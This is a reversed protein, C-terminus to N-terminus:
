PFARWRGIPWFIARVVGVFDDRQAAGWFRSDQSHASNDGLMFYEDDGLAFRPSPDLGYLHKAQPVYYVDRDIQVRSIRLECREAVLGVHCSPRAVADEFRDSGVLRSIVTRGDQQVYVRGDRHAFTWRQGPGLPRPSAVSIEDDPHLTDGTLELNVEGSAAIAAIMLLQGYTWTFGFGGDGSFAALDCTVRVDANPHVDEPAPDSYVNYSLWNDIPRAFTLKQQKSAAGSFAAEKSFTWDSEQADAQWLPQKLTQAVYTSDFVPFWLEEQQGPVKRLRRGDIFVDGDALGVTEGPLGVLRKVYPVRAPEGPHREEPPIEQGRPPYWFVALDWRRPFAIKDVLIRDGALPLGRVGHAQQHGCNGCTAQKDHRSDFPWRRHYDSMTIPYQWGCNQCTVDTHAGLITTALGGTPVVFSEMLFGSVLLAIAWGAGSGGALWALMTLLSKGRTTGMMRHIAAYIALCTGVLVLALWEFTEDAYQLLSLPVTLAWIVLATAVSRRWTARPFNLWRGCLWLIAANILLAAVLVVVWLGIITGVSMIQSWRGGPQCRTAIARIERSDIM